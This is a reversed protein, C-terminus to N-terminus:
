GANGAETMAADGADLPVGADPEVCVGSVCVLGGQCDHDRTCPGEVGNASSDAGGSCAQSLGLALGFVLALRFM